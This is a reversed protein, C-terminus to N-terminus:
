RRQRASAGTERDKKRQLAAIGSNDVVHSAQMVSDFDDNDDVESGSDSRSEEEPQPKSVPIAETPVVIPAAKDGVDNLSEFPRAAAVMRRLEAMEEEDDELPPLEFRDRPEEGAEEDLEDDGEVGDVGEGELMATRDGRSAAYERELRALWDEEARKVEEESTCAAYRDLLEANISLFEEGYSFSELLTVAWEPRGCIHFAAATAEACNLRWPRGYNTPNAAVLYPLLRECRGGVKNFPVEDVRKWSCEVVAVGPGLALAADAPSLTARARPSLTVGGFRAGLPLSRALGLRQLKKGSCRRADCHNLDWMAATFPPPRRQQPQDQPDADASPSPDPDFPDRPFPTPNAPPPRPRRPGHYKKSARAMADKKHRVM